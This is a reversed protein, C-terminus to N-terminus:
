DAPVLSEFDTMKIRKQFEKTINDYFSDEIKQQEPKLSAYYTPDLDSAKFQIDTSRTGPQAFSAINAEIKRAISQYIKDNEQHQGLKIGVNFNIGGVM